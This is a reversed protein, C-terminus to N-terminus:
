EDDEADEEDEDYDEDGGDDDDDGGARAPKSPAAPMMQEALEPNSALQTLQEVTFWKPANTRRLNTRQARRLARFAAKRLEPTGWPEGAKKPADDDGEDDDKAEVVKLPKVGKPKVEVYGKGTKEKILKDAEKQAAEPSALKKPKKQGASGIKGFRVTCTSDVVVVEWFKSSDDEEYEFRRAGPMSVDPSPGSDEEDEDGEDSEEEEEAEEDEGEDDEGDGGGASFALKALFTVVAEGGMRGLAALAALQVAESAGKEAQAMLVSPDKAGILKPMMVARAAETALHMADGKLADFALADLPKSTEILAVAQQPATANLASVAARRVGADLDGVAKVLVPVAGAGAGKLVRASEARVSAPAPAGGSLSKAALEEVQRAEHLTAAWLLRLFASEEAQKDTGVSKSWRTATATAAAVLARTREVLENSTLKVGALAHRAMLWAMDDRVSPFESATFKVLADTPLSERRGLGFKVKKRLEPKLRPNALRELLPAPEAEALLYALAPGSINPLDSSAASMAVRLPDNPFCAELAQLATEALQWQQLARALVKESSPDALVALARIAEKRVEVDRDGEDAAIQQLKSLARDDGVWKLGRVGALRFGGELAAAEVLELVRKKKDLETLSRFLRGLAEIASGRVLPDVPAEETGGSALVELEELARVQGSAGLALVARSQEEVEGARTFLLLPRLSAAHQKAALGEAASLMLERAGQAVVQELPALPAGHKEVRKAYSAVAQVRTAVDRDGFLSILLADHEPEVGIDAERAAACRIAADKAKMAARLAQLVGQANRPHRKEEKEFDRTPAGKPPPRRHNTLLLAGQLAAMRVDAAPDELRQLIAELGVPRRTSALAALADRKLTNQASADAAPPLAALEQLHTALAIAAADTASSALATRAAALSPGDPVLFAALAPVAADDKREALLQAALLRVDDRDSELAKRLAPLVRADQSAALKQLVGLRLDAHPSALAAMLADLKGPGHSRELLEFAKQRVEPVNSSLTEVFWPRAAEGRANLQELALLGVDASASALAHRLAVDPTAELLKALGAYAKKRVLSDEDDLARVLAPVVSVPKPSGASAMEIMRDVCDRRVRRVTEDPNSLRLLGVYAGFAIWRRVELEKSDVNTVKSSAGAFLKRLWDRRAVADTSARGRQNTDPVLTESAPRMAVVRKVEEFFELPKRRLLLAQGAAYRAQPTDAGLLQVLRMAAREREGEEPWDKMDSVKEPKPPSVANILLETYASVDARLELARAAAYRVDPRGASLAATLLEPENGERAARLDRALLTAFFTDSLYSDGDDLGLFLANDGAPGLAVLARLAGERIPLHPDKLTGTLVALGRDDGLRALGEAAWSRVAVDAHSLADLLLGEHGANCLGRAAQERVAPNEDKLLPDAFVAATRPSGLTALAGVARARLPELFAPPHRLKLETDLVFGRMPEIIREDGRRALLEAARVRVELADAMLGATLPGPDDKVLADASELAALKVPISLDALAKVLPSRLQEAEPKGALQASRRAALIRTAVSESELGKLWPKAAERGLLRSLAVIAAEGVAADRDVVSKELRELIWGPVGKPAPQDDDTPAKGIIALQKVANLRMDAFRGTLARDIAGMPDKEHWAWLTKFAEARVSAAEDELAHGLLTEAEESRDKAQLGVLRTLGRKRMDEFASRLLIGTFELPGQEDKRRTLAEAAAARVSADVDDVMSAVRQRARPDSLQALTMVVWVRHAAPEERSLQLLASVARVDGAAWLLGAAGRSAIDTSRASMAVLLPTLDDQTVEKSATTLGLKAKLAALQEPNPDKGGNARRMVEPLELMKELLAATAPRELVRVVFGVQRVLANEDDLARGSISQLQSLKGSFLARVLVEARVDPSGKEFGTVLAEVGEPFIAQLADLAALRVSPDQDKLAGAALAPVLPVAPYLPALAKLAMIRVAPVTARTGERWAFFPQDETAALAELAAQAVTVDRDKVLTRLLPRADKRTPSKLTKALTLRVSTERDGALTELLPVAEAEALKPLDKALQEKAARQATKLQNAYNTFGDLGVDVADPLQGELGVPIFTLKRSDGGVVIEVSARRPDSEVLALARQVGDVDFTKSRKKDDLRVTRVKADHGTSVLRDSTDKADDKPSPLFAFATAGGAHGTDGEGRVECEVAGELYWFRVTGDDGTSALRGDRPTFALATVAGRHGEMERADKAGFTFVRVVGDDGAAAVRNNALDLAVARQPGKAHFEYKKTGGDWVTVRGDVGTSALLSGSVSLATVGGPHAADFTGAAEGSAFDFRYLKGDIAGVVLHKDHFALAATHSPLALTRTVKRTGADFLTVASVGDLRTGGIALTRGTAALARIQELHGIVYSAM